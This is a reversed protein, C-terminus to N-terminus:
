SIQGTKSTNAWGCQVAQLGLSSSEQQIYWTACQKHTNMPLGPFAPARRRGPVWLEQCLEGSRLASPSSALGHRGENCMECWGWRCKPVQEAVPTSPLPNVPKDGGRFIKKMNKLAFFVVFQCHEGVFPPSSCGTLLMWGGPCRGFPRRAQSM